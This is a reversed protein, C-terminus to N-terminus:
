SKDEKFIHDCLFEVMRELENIRLTLQQIKESEKNRFHRYAKVYKDGLYKSM